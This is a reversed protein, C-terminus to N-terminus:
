SKVAELLHPHQHINGEVVKKDNKEAYPTNSYIRRTYPGYEDGAKSIAIWGDNQWTVVYLTRSSAYSLIDGEFIKTGNKDTLGTFQGVTNSDPIRETYGSKLQIGCGILGFKPEAYYGQTILDGYVMVGSAAIARFLIERNM